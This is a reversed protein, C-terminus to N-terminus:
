GDCILDTELVLTDGRYSQRQERVGVTPRISWRGHEDYGLLSTFCADSDFRPACLWDISGSKSILAATRGNGILGYDEIKSAMSTEGEARPLPPRGRPPSATPCPSRGAECGPRM